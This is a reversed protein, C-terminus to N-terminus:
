QFLLVLLTMMFTTLLTINEADSEDVSKAFFGVPKNCHDTKCTQECVRRKASKTEDIVSCNSTSSLTINPKCGFDFWKQSGDLPIFEQLFCIGSKISCTETSVAEICKNTKSKCEHCTLSIALDVVFCLLLLIQKMDRVCLPPLKSVTTQGM